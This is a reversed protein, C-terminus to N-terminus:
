DGRPPRRCGPFLLEVADREAASRCAYRTVGAVLAIAAIMCSIVSDIMSTPCSTM